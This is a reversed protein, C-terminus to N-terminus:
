VWVGQMGAYEAGFLFAVALLINESRTATARSGCPGTCSSTRASHGRFRPASLSAFTAFGSEVDETGQGRAHHPPGLPTFNCNCHHLLASLGVALGM